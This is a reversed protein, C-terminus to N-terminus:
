YIVWKVVLVLLLLREMQWQLLLCVVQLLHVLTLVKITGKQSIKPIKTM